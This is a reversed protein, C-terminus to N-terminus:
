IWNTCIRRGDLREAQEFQIDSPRKRWKMSVPRRFPTDQQVLCPALHSCIRVFTRFCMILNAHWMKDNFTGVTVAKHVTCVEQQVIFGVMVAACFMTINMPRDRQTQRTCLLKAGCSSLSDSRILQLHCHPCDTNFILNSFCFPNTQLRFLAKLQWLLFPVPSILSMLSPQRLEPSSTGSSQKQAHESMSRAQQLVWHFLAKTPWEQAPGWCTQLPVWWYSHM